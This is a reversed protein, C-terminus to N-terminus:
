QPDPHRRIVEIMEDIRKEIHEPELRRNEMGKHILAMLEHELLRYAETYSSDAFKFGRVQQSLQEPTANLGWEMYEPRIDMANQKHRVSQIFREMKEVPVGRDQFRLLLRDTVVGSLSSIQHQWYHPKEEKAFSKDDPFREMWRAYDKPGNWGAKRGEELVHEYFEAMASRLRYRRYRLGVNLGERKLETKPKEGTWMFPEDYDDPFAKEFDDRSEFVLDSYRKRADPVQAFFEELLLRRNGSGTHRALYYVVEDMQKRRTRPDSSFPGTGSEVLVRTKEFHRDAADESAMYALPVTSLAMVGLLARLSFNCRFSWGASAPSALLCVALTLRLANKM